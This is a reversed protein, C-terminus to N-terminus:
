EFVITAAGEACTHEATETWVEFSVADDEVTTVEAQITLPEEPTARGVNQWSLESLRGEPGAWSLLHRQVLAGHLHSQVLVDPHGETQAYEPDYHIRHGNWTMASYRFLQVRSPETDLPDLRDGVAVDPM